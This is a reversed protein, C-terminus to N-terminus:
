AAREMKVQGELTFGELKTVEILVAAGKRAPDHTQEVEPMLEFIRDATAPDAVIEARGEFVLTTRTRSDRYLLSVLPNARVARAGGGDAKRMWLSLRTGDYAQISGRVSLLPRGGEGACGFAMPTGNALAGDVLARVMDPMTEVPDARAFPTVKQEIRVIRDEADFAFSLALGDPSAGTTAFSAFTELRDGNAQPASWVARYYANTMPWQGLLAGLIEDPGRLEGAPRVLVADPALIAELRRLPAPEGSRLANVFLRVAFTRADM